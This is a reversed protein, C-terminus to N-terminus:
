RLILVLGVGVACVAILDRIFDLAILVKYKYRNM